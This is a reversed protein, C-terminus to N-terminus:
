TSLQISMQMGAGWHALGAQQIHSNLMWFYFLLAEGGWGCCSLRTLCRAASCVGRAVLPHRLSLLSPSSHMLRATRLPQISKFCSWTQISYHDSLWSCNSWIVFREFSKSRLVVACDGQALPSDISYKSLIRHSSNFPHHHRPPPFNADHLIFAAFYKFLFTNWYGFDRGLM